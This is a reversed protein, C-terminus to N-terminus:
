AIDTSDFGEFAYIRHTNPPPSTFTIDRSSITYATTPEQVVNGVVVIVSNVSEPATTFFNNFTTDSGNGTVVTTKTIAADGARSLNKWATGNYFEVKDTDTNYRFDSAVPSSPRQATSGSAITTSQTGKNVFALDSLFGAM